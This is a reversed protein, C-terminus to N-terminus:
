WYKEETQESEYQNIAIITYFNNQKKRAIKDNSALQIAGDM